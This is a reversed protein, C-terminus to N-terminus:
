PGAEAKEEYNGRFQLDSLSEMRWGGRRPKEIESIEMGEVTLVFCYQNDFMQTMNKNDTVMRAKKLLTGVGM